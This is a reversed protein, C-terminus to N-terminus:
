IIIVQANPSQFSKLPKTGFSQLLYKLKASARACAAYHTEWINHRLERWTFKLGLDYPLSKLKLNERSFM